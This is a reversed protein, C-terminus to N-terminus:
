ASPLDTKAMVPNAYMTLLWRQETANLTQLRKSFQNMAQANVIGDGPLNNLKAHAIHNSDYLRYNGIIQQDIAAAISKSDSFEGQLPQGFAVHVRGKDGLIGKTISRIDEDETKQYGGSTEVIALEKAKDSDCPDFEYAISVPVINLQKVYETISLDKNKKLLLMSILATNTKDLGDKARGERQAIWVHQHNDNLTHHVYASLKKAAKFTDRKSTESRKVIFSKNLRMIDSIWPKSLLNDGIAIELTNHGSEHLAINILAPDLAIDRHNSIFLTPKSMDLRDLGSHSFGNTSREILRYMYKAAELQIDHVSTFKHTRRALSLKVLYRALKPWIRSLLPMLYHAISSQFEKNNVLNQIVSAVEDDRYPRIDSFM